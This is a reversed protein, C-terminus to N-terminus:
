QIAFMPNHKSKHCEIIITPKIKISFTMFEESNQFM